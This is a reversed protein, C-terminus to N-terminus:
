AELKKEITRQHSQQELCSQPHQWATTPKAIKRREHKPDIAYFRHTAEFM